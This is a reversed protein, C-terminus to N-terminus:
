TVGYFKKFDRMFHSEDDFGLLHAIESVRLYTTALLERAKEMKARKVYQDITLGTEGKFLARLHPTSLNVRLALDETTLKDLSVQPPAPASGPVPLAQGHLIHLVTRVRYDM